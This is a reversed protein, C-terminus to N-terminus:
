NFSGPAAREIASRDDQALSSGTIDFQWLKESYEYL